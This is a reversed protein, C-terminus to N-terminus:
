SRLTYGQPAAIADSRSCRASAISRHKNGRSTLFLLNAAADMSPNNPAECRVGREQEPGGKLREGGNCPTTVADRFVFSSGSLSKIV